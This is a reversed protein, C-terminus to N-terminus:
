RANPYNPLLSYTGGTVLLVKGSLDHIDKDPTFSAGGFMNFPNIYSAHARFADIPHYLTTLVWSSLAVTEEFVSSTSAPILSTTSSTPQTEQEHATGFVSTQSTQEEAGNPM